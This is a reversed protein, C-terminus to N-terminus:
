FLLDGCKDLIRGIVESHVPDFTCHCARADRNVHVNKNDVEPVANSSGM